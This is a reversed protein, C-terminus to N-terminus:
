EDLFTNLLTYFQNHKYISYTQKIPFDKNLLKSIVQIKTLKLIDPINKNQQLYETFNNEFNLNMNINWRDFSFIFYAFADEYNLISDISININDYYKKEYKAYLSDFSFFLNSKFKHGEDTLSFINKPLIILQNSNNLALLYYAIFQQEPTLSDILIKKSIPKDKLYDLLVWTALATSHASGSTENQTALWAGDTQQSNIINEIYHAKIPMGMFSKTAIAEIDVDYLQKKPKSIFSDLKSILSRYLENFSLNNNNICNNIKSCQLYICAHTLFYNGKLSINHIINLYNKPLKFNNCYLSAILLSDRHHKYYNYTKKSISYSSNFWRSYDIINSSNLAYKNLEINRTPYPIYVSYKQQIYKIALLADRDPKVNGDLSLFHVAKMLSLVTKAPSIYSINISDKNIENSFMSLACFTFITYLYIKM